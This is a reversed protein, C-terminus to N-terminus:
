REMGADQAREQEAGRSVLADLRAELTSLQEAVLSPSDGGGIALVAQDEVLRRETEADRIVFSFAQEWDPTLITIMGHEGQRVLGERMSAEVLASETPNGDRWRAFEGETMRFYGPESM